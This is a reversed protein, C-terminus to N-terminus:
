GYRLALPKPGSSGVALCTSASTCTVGNLSANAEIRTPALIAAAAPGAGALVVLGSLAVFALLLSSWRGGSRWAYTHGGGRSHDDPPWLSALEGTAAVMSPKGRVRM